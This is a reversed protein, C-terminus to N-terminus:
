EFALSGFLGGVWEVVWGGVWGGEELVGAVAGDEEDEVASEGLLRDEWRGGWGGVWGGGVWLVEDAENEEVKRHICLLKGVWGGM